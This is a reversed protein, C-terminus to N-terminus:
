NIMCLLCRMADWLLNVDTPNHVDTEVVFSDRRGQLTEDPAKHSVKHGCEVILQNVADLLGPSLLTVNDIV